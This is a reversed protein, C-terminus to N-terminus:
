NTFKMIYINCVIVISGNFHVRLFEWDLFYHVRLFLIGWVRSSTNKLQAFNFEKKFFPNVSGYIFDWVMGLPNAMKLKQGYHSIFCM